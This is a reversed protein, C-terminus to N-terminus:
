RGDPGASRSSSMAYTASDTRALRTAPPLGMETYLERLAAVTPEPAFRREYTARACGALRARLAPNELLRGLASQLANGDGPPVLIADHGDTVDEPAGDIASAVISTGGQLAELLSVSGSGEELSPLVFVDTRILYPVVDPVRGPFAVSRALGTREALRRHAELLIGTGLLCARFQIGRVRLDALAAILVDLGKRGDHRSVSVILPM